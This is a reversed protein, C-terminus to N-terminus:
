GEGGTANRPQTAIAIAARAIDRIAELRDSSDMAFAAPAVIAELAQLLEARQEALERPTLGTEHLVTGAEAILRANAEAEQQEKTFRLSTCGGQNRLVATCIVKGKHTVRRPHRSAVAWPGPTGEFGSSM